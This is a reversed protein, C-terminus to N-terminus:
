GAKGQEDVEALMPCFPECIRCFTEKVKNM